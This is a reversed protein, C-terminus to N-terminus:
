SRAKVLELLFRSDANILHSPMFVLSVESIPNGIKMTSNVASGKSRLRRTPHVNRLRITAFSWQSDCRQLIFDDLVRNAGNKLADVFFVEETETIAKSWTAALM